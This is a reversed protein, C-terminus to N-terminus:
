VRERCSARGIGSEGTLVVVQGSGDAAAKWAATLEALEPARGFLRARPQAPAASRLQAAAARTAPSPAVGLEERLQQSFLRAEQVAGARDGAAQLRRLLDRHAGEDLPALACRRRSWTVADASRGGRDAASALEELARLRRHRHEERAAHVWHDDVGPLLEGAGPGIDGETVATPLADVWLQDSRLGISNRSGELVQDAAAGWAQRVSWIATRLNARASAEPVDPWLQAALYSRPHPGPHLALWGILARVRDGPPMAIPEGDFEGAFRGCLWLRLM